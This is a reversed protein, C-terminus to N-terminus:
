VIVWTNLSTEVLATDVGDGTIYPETIKWKADKAFLSFCKSEGGGKGGGAWPPRANERKDHVFLYGQVIRGNVDRAEGLSFVGKSVETAHSPIVVSHATPKALVFVSTALFIFVLLPFIIKVRKM